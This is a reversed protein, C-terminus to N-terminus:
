KKFLIASYRDLLKDANLDLRQNELYINLLALLTTSDWAVAIAIADTTDSIVATKFNLAAEPNAKIIKKVELEDRYAAVVEGKTAAQVVKEWTEYSIVKANHFYKGAYEEYASKEIVGINGQLKQVTEEIPVDSRTQKALSLRNILLAQRLIVYPTTYRVRTAREFTRSLKCWAIDAQRQVVRDVAANYSEAQRDFEVEVGLQTAFGRALEIDLGWYQGKADVAFFPPNDKKPMAILLKGRDFIRQIDPPLLPVTSRMRETTSQIKKQEPSLTKSNISLPSSPSPPPTTVVAFVSTSLLLGLGIFVIFRKLHNKNKNLM